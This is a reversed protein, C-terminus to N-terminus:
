GWRTGSNDALHRLAECAYRTVMADANAGEFGLQLAVYFGSLDHGCMLLQCMFPKSGEHHAAEGEYCAACCAFM